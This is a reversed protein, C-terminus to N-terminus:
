VNTKLIQETHYNYADTKLLELELIIKLILPKQPSTDLVIDTLTKMCTELLYVYNKYGVGTTCDLNTDFFIGATADFNKGISALYIEYNEKKISGLTGSIFDQLYTVGTDKNPNIHLAKILFRKIDYTNYIDNRLGGGYNIKTQGQTKQYTNERQSNTHFNNYSNGGSNGYSKTNTYGYNYGATTVPKPAPKLLEYREAFFDSINNSEPMEIDCDIYYIVNKEPIEINKSGFISNTKIVTAEQKGTVCLKACYKKDYNVILSLYYKHQPANTRLEDMDTGSFFASMNHHTHIHGMIWRKTEDEELMPDAKPYLEMIEMLSEADFDYETYGASGINMLYLAEANLVLNEPDNIEGSEISWLLIASWELGKIAHQKHLWDIQDSIHETIKLTCHETLTHEQVKINSM